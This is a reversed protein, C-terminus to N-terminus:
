TNFKRIKYATRRVTESLHERACQERCADKTVVILRPFGKMLSLTYAYKMCSDVCKNYTPIKDFETTNM